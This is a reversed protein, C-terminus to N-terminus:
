RSSNNLIMRIFQSLIANCIEFGCIEDREPHFQVLIKNDDELVEITGDEAKAKLKLGPAVNKVAQHHRSNVLYAGDRIFSSGESIIKHYSSFKNHTLHISYNENLDTILDTYLDGGMLSNILQMGRCVGLIPTTNKYHSFYEKECLDRESIQEESPVGYFSSHIDAGGTFVIGDLEPFEISRSNTTQLQIIKIPRPSSASSIWRRYESFTSIFKTQTIGIKIEM